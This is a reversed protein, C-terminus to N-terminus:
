TNKMPSFALALSTLLSSDDADLSSLHRSYPLRLSPLNIDESASDHVNIEAYKKGGTVLLCLALLASFAAAMRPSMKRRPLARILQGSAM